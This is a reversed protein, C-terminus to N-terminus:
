GAVRVGGERELFDVLRLSVDIPIWDAAGLYRSRQKDPEKRSRALYQQRKVDGAKRADAMAWSRMMRRIRYFEANSLDPFDEAEITPWTGVAGWLRGTSEWGEPHGSRQYHHIGRTAHKALYKLWGMAGSIRDWRQGRLGPRYQGALVIWHVLLRESEQVTLQRDFYLALHMHPTGREQWEIVWHGYVLGMRRVRFLYAERLRHFETSTAPTDAITLTLAIGTDTLGDADVSWAWQRQRRAAAASWGTVKGRKARLHSGTGGMFLALGNQYLRMTPMQSEEFCYTFASWHGPRELAAPSKKAM